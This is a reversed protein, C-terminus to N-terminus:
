KNNEVVRAANREQKPDNKQNLVSLKKAVFAKNDVAKAKATKKEESM